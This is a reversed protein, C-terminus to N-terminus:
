PAPDWHIVVGEFRGVGHAARWFIAFDAVSLFGDAWAFPQLEAEGLPIGNITVAVANEGHGINIAIEDVRTVVPDVAVIKRAYRTRLATYLQIPEGPRAHRKKGHARVTQRKSGAAILDVFRGKFSYAVM